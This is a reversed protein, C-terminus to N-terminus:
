VHTFWHLENQLVTNLAQDFLKLSQVTSAKPDKHTLKYVTREPPMESLYFMSFHGSKLANLAVSLPVIAWMESNQLLAPIVLATAVHSRGGCLPNWWKDHWIQYNNGWKVYLEHDPNLEHPYIITGFHCTDSRRLVVLPEAYCKEALVMPHTRELLSFAVDVQRREIEDYLDASHSTIVRLTIRPQHHCLIKYLPPFISYIISNIVGITLALKPGDFKFTEIQQKLSAWREALDVFAEGAPTLRIGHGRELLTAGVKQELVQLRKSITPQALNLQAAARSINRTRAVSLFAELGLDYM